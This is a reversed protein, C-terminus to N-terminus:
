HNFIFFRFTLGINKSSSWVGSIKLIFINDKGNEINEANHTKFFGKEIQEALKLHKNKMENNNHLITYEINCLKNMLSRNIDKQFFCKYKKYYKGITVNQIPIILFIGQITFIDTSYFITQFTSNQIIKNNIKKGYLVNQHNFSNCNEVLLM